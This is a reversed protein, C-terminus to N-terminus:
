WWWWAVVEWTVLTFWPSIYKYFMKHVVLWRTDHPHTYTYCKINFVCGDVLNFLMYNIVRYCVQVQLACLLHIYIPMLAQSQECAYKVCM